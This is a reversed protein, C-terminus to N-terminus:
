RSKVLAIFNARLSRHKRALRARWHRPLDRGARIWVDVYHVFLALRIAAEVLVQPDVLEERVGELISKALLLLERLATEIDFVPNSLPDIAERLVDDIADRLEQSDVITYRSLSQDKGSVAKLRPRADGSVMAAIRVALAGTTERSKNQRVGELLRTALDILEDRTHDDFMIEKSDLFQEAAGEPELM